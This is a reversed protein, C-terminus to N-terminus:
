ARPLLPYACRLSRGTAPACLLLNFREPVSTMETIIAQGFGCTRSDEHIVVLRGTKALSEEITQWDCPVLTRLDIIELSIGEPAVREAAQEAWSWRTAGPSWRSM